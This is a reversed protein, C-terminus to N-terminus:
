SGSRGLLPNSCRLSITLKRRVLLGEHAENVKPLQGALKLTTELNVVLAKQVVGPKFVLTVFVEIIRGVGM